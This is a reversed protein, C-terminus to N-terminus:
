SDEQRSKRTGRMKPGVGLYGRRDQITDALIAKNGQSGRHGNSLWAHCRDKFHEDQYKWFYCTQTFDGFDILTVDAARVLGPIVLGVLLVSAIKM